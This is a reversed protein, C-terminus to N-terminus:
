VVTETYSHEISFETVRAKIDEKAEELSPPHRLHYHGSSCFVSVSHLSSVCMM